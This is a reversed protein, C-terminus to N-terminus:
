CWVWAFDNVESYSTISALGAVKNADSVLAVFAGVIVETFGTLSLLRGNMIGGMGEVLDSSRESTPSPTSPSAAHMCPIIVFGNVKSYYAISTLFTDSAYPVLAVITGIIIQAFGTLNVLRCNMIGAVGKVLYSLWLSSAWIESSLLLLIGVVVLWNMEAHITVTAGSAGNNSESVLTASTVVVIQALSAFGLFSYVIWIV